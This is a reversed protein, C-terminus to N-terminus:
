KGPDNEIQLAPGFFPYKKWGYHKQELAHVAAGPLRLLLYLMEGQEPSLKLDAFATAIVGSMSLPCQTISELADHNDQLWMLKSEQSHKVLEKLTQKVPTACRTGNPDFGPPHDLEGWVEARASQPPSDVIAKWKQIDEGCEQWWGMMLYVDRAGELKGAGASLAAMLSSAATSGGVGACMAARVSHSRIGPNAIAVAIRELLSAQWKQPRDLKFLLFLYEAWSARTLIEEYVDYGACFCRAAVFPNDPEPEEDWIKSRIVEQLSNDKEESM